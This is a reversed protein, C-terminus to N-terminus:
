TPAARSSSTWPRSAPCRATCTPATTSASTATSTSRRPSRRTTRSRRTAAHEPRQRERALLRVALFGLQQQDADDAQARRRGHVTRRVTGGPNSPDSLTATSTFRWVFRPASGSLAGTWSVTGGDVRTAARRRRRRQARPLAPTTPRSTGAVHRRARRAALGRQRHRGARDLVGAHTASTRNAHRENSTTFVIVSAAMIALVFSVGIAMVLAMGREDALHKAFRNTRDTMTLEQPLQSPRDPGAAPLPADHGRAEHRGHPRRGGEAATRQSADAPRVRREHVLYDAYLRSGTANVLERGQPLRSARGSGVACWTHRTTCSGDAALSFLTVNAASSQTAKCSNHTERRFATLALRANQQATFRKSLDSEANSGSM